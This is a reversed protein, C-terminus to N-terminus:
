WRVLTALITGDIQVSGEVSVDRGNKLDDCQKNFETAAVTVVTRGDVVFTLVPCVGLLGSVKGTVTTTAQAPAQDVTVTQDAITLMWSRSVSDANAAV